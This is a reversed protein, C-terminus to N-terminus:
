YNQLFNVQGCGENARKQKRFRSPRTPDSRLSAPTWSWSNGHHGLHNGPPQEPIKKSGVSIFHEQKLSCYVCVCVDVTVAWSMNILFCINCVVNCFSLRLGLNRKWTHVHLTTSNFQLLMKLYFDIVIKSVEKAKVLKYNNNAFNQKFYILYLTNHWSSM